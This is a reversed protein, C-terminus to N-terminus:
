GANRLCESFGKQMNVSTHMGCEPFNQHTSMFLQQLNSATAISYHNPGDM